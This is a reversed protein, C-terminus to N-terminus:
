ICLRKRVRELLVHLLEVHKLCLRNGCRGCGIGGGCGGDWSGLGYVDRRRLLQLRWRAGFPDLQWWLLVRRRCEPARGCDIHRAERPLVTAM